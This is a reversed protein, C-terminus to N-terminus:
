HKMTSQQKRSLRPTSLLSQWAHSLTAHEVHACDTGLQIDMKHKCISALLAKTALVLNTEALVTRQMGFTAAHM